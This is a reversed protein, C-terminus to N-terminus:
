PNRKCIELLRREAAPSLGLAPLITRLAAESGHGGLYGNIRAAATSNMFDGADPYISRFEWMLDDQQRLRFKQHYDEAVYFRNLQRIEPSASVNRRAADRDRAKLALTKQHDDHYFVASMYQRSDSAACANPTAWFVDLLRAYTIQAPDYDFQVSETHGGLNFYTPNATTGGTYGVRTRIV